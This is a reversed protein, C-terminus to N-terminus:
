KVIVVPIKSSHIVYNSVSGFFLSKTASQGRSGIVIMDFKDQEHALKIINYGIDGHMKIIELKVGGNAATSVAENLIKEIEDDMRKDRSGVGEFGSPSPASISYMGTLAADCQKALTIAVELGRKSNKSGDLPVLIKKIDNM